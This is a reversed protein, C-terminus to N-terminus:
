LGTTKQYIVQAEEVQEPTNINFFPDFATCPFEAYTAGQQTAWAAVKRVGNKLDARLQNRLSVPWLGFTPHVQRQGSASVSAALSLGSPGAAQGLRHVLDTPFFPTDAAVTVISAANMTAAWDLGALVGALPGPYDPVTDPLIPVAFGAFRAPERNANLAIRTVQPSLRKIVHDLLSQNGIRILAKDGGGMRSATGGALIVGLPRKM